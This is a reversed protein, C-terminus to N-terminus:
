IKKWKSFELKAKLGRFTFRDLFGRIESVNWGEKLLDNIDKCGRPFEEEPVLVVAQGEEILRNAVKVIEKNRPQTDVVFVFDYQLPLVSPLSTVGGTALSNGLIMADFPGEVCYVPKTTDIADLGFVLPHNKDSHIAYYRPTSNDGMARAHCGLFTREKSWFPIVIRAEDLFPKKFKEEQLVHNAWEKFHETYYVKKLVELPLRRSGQLYMRAPHDRKLDSCLVLGELPNIGMSSVAVVSEAESSKGGSGRVKMRVTFIEKLYLPHIRPAMEKLFSDFSTSYGCNHCKCALREHKIPYIYFRTKTKSKASDGCFPCRGNFVNGSKESFKDLLNPGEQRAYKLDIDFRGFNM